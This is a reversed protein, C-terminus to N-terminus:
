STKPRINAPKHSPRIIKTFVPIGSLKFTDILKKKFHTEVAPRLHDTRSCSLVFFFPRTTEVAAYKVTFVNGNMTKYQERAVMEKVIRTVDQAKYNESLKEFIKLSEFLIKQIQRNELASTFLVPAFYFNYLQRYLRKQYFHQEEKNHVLDWKNAVILVPKHSDEIKKAIYLDTQDLRKSIDVVYIIVDVEGILRLARIVSASETSEKVKQMKRIGANDVIVFRQGHWKFDLDLSDRTTGPIESVIAVEDNFIANVLSSKGVNPKGVFGIRVPSKEFNDQDSTSGKLMEEIKELLVDLHHGHEASIFIFSDTLKYYSNPLIFLNPNDAKNVVSLITKGMKKLDLYLDEEYGLLERRGDFLFLILDSQLSVDIVRRKIALSIVDQDTFVGGTDQLQYEQKDIFMTGNHVDRTMGPDSHTLAKRTGTLRNFLTSKGTNPVGVITIVPKNKKM